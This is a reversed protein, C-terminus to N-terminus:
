IDRKEDDPKEFEKKKRIGSQTEMKALVEEKAFNEDHNIEGKAESVARVFSAINFSEAEPKGETEGEGTFLDTSNEWRLELTIM